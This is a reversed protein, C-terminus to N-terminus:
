LLLTEQFIDTTFDLRSDQASGKKINDVLNEKKMSKKYTDWDEENDNDSFREGGRTGRYRDASGFSSSGYSAASSKYSIGASSLGFYRCYLQASNVAAM